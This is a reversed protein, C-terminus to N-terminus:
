HVLIMKRTEEHGPAQLRCFYVGSAVNRGQDDKANWVVAHRGAACSGEVLTRILKGSVDYIRLAALSGGAPIDFHITTNPNFPNPANPHLAYAAPAAKGYAATVTEPTAPESENGAYDLATIRYYVDGGDYDPDNWSTMILSHVLTSPTPVFNPDSSRYIRFCHFDRDSSAGWSLLNGSGTNYAVAFGEPAMPAINDLSCGSDPESVYWISPTTTHATIIFIHDFSDVVTPLAAIYSDQQVAPVTAVWVWTGPPFSAAALGPRSLVYTNGEYRVVPVNSMELIEDGAAKEGLLQGTAELAAALAANEVRRWIGYSSIPLENETSFDRGSRTFHALVWGGQDNPVDVMSDISAAEYLWDIELRSARPNVGPQVWEHTSRWLLDTGANELAYWEGGAVVPQWHTGGDASLEWSIGATQTAALRAKLIDDDSSDMALSRGINRGSDFENQFVQIASFASARTTFVHNGWIDAGSTQEGYISSVTPVAPDSIDIVCLGDGTTVFAYDGSVIVRRADNISQCIGMPVPTGSAVDFVMFDYCDILVYAYNGSVALGYYTYPNGTRYHGLGVPNTPNGVDIVIFWDSDFIAYARHGSVALARAYSPTPYHSVLTPNAPDRVDIVLLADTPLPYELGIALAFAYNGSVAVSLIYGSANWTGALVPDAPDSINFVLLGSSGDAVYAYEGSVAVERAAGPTDFYGVVAPNAPDSIDFIRLGDISAAAYAYDGYVKIDFAWPAACSGMHTPTTPAAIKIVRLGSGGDAVFAYEGSVTAGNAFGPTNYTGVLAPNAPDSIDIAQLGSSGDAVYARSGWVAVGNAAGPTNYTGVLAPNAPDGVDIVQLGSNGDAVYARSGWVAVRLANHPTDYAGVIAPNAPDGVNIIQLGSGYDAVYAHDGSIAVAHAKDPTDCTGLLAPAAPNRVDFIQLGYDGDAVYARDGSVAIGYALGPTNYTGVLVPNSPDRIDIIQLGSGYDAVYARVGSVAVRMAHGPTNYSGVLSPNAPDSIDIMLLGSAQDAIFALDGAVVVDDAYGPTDYAGVSTLVFPPLKLEGAVTDWWATTHAADKYRTTTFDERYTHDIAFGSRTPFIIITAVAAMASIACFVGRM